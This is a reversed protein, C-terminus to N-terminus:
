FACEANRGRALRALKSALRNRLARCGCKACQHPAYQIGGFSMNARLSPGYCLRLPTWPRIPAVVYVYARGKSVWFLCNIKERATAENIYALVARTMSGVPVGNIWWPHIMPSGDVYFNGWECQVEAVHNGNLESVVRSRFGCGRPIRVVAGLYEGLCDGMGMTHLPYLGLSDTDPPDPAICVPWGNNWLVAHVCSPLLLGLYTPLAGTDIKPPASQCRSPGSTKPSSPTECCKESQSMVPPATSTRRVSGHPRDEARLSTRTHIHPDGERSLM